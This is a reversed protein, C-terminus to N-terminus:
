FIPFLLCISLGSQPWFSSSPWSRLLVESKRDAIRHSCSGCWYCCMIEHIILHGVPPVMQCRGSLSLYLCVLLLVLLVLVQLMSPVSSQLGSCNLQIDLLNSRHNDRPNFYNYTALNTLSHIMLGM